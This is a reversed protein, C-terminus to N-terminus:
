EEAEELGTETVFYSTATDPLHPADVLRAVRAGKKGIRLYIRFSSNHGVIHGGIPKVPDGFMAGPNDMVQNTVIVAINYIEAMKLLEHMYRNLKQQRDALEGRGQFESRFHSTLSDVILLKVDLKNNILEEVASNLLMQHDSNFANSRHIRNLIDETDTINFGKCFQEIREPRFANETDIYVVHSSPYNKLCSVALLQCLQTKGSSYQGYLETIAGSEFGGDLMKDFSALGTPLKFTKARTVKLQQGSEFGINAYKKAQFIIKRAVAESVGTIEAIMAPTSTAIKMFNAFGGAILKDATGQGVGELDTLQPEKVEEEKRKAM